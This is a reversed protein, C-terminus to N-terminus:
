AQIYHVVIIEIDEPKVNKIDEPKALRKRLRFVLAIENAAPQYMARRVPVEVGLVQSALRATSEHGIYSDIGIGRKKAEEVLARATEADVRAAYVIHEPFALPSNLIPLRRQGTAEFIKGVEVNFPHWGAYYGSPDVVWLLLPIERKAM